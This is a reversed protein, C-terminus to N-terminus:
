SRWHDAHGARQEQDPIDQGLEGRPTIARAGDFLLSIADTGSSAKASMEVVREPQITSSSAPNRQHAGAAACVGAGPDPVRGAGVLTAVAPPATLTSGSRMSCNGGSRGTAVPLTSIVRPEDRTRASRMSILRAVPSVTAVPCTM